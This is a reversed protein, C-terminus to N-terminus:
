RVQLAEDLEVAVSGFRMDGVEVRYGDAAAEVRYVPLRSWTALGRVEPSALAATAAPHDDGIPVEPGLPTIGEGWVFSIRHYHRDDALIVSKALPNGPAPSMMIRRPEIERNRAWDVVRARALQSSTVMAGVYLLAVSLCVTALRPLPWGTGRLRIVGIAALGVLWGWQAATPVDPVGLVLLSAIAALTIWGALALRDRSHAMVAVTGLLLWVWPDVIFLTDGYFWERSFPMLLRVGYTNLWDMAPHSLVSLYSLAILRRVPVPTADPNRRCRTRDVLHMAWGLVLPLVAMALIGHTWGRRVLLALDSGIFYTAADVDPLNAGVVLTTTGLPVRGFRTQALSAGVLTHTLPDM